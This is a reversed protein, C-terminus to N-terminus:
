LWSPSFGRRFISSANWARYFRWNRSHIASSEGCQLCCHIWQCSYDWVLSSFSWAWYNSFTDFRVTHPGLEDLTIPDVTNIPRKRMKACNRSSEGIKLSHKKLSLRLSWRRGKMWQKNISSSAFSKKSCCTNGINLDLRQTSSGGGEKRQLLSFLEPKSLHLYYKLGREAAIARLEKMSPSSRTEM